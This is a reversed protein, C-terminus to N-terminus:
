VVLFSDIISPWYRHSFSKHHNVSQKKKIQDKSIQRYICGDCFQRYIPSDSLKQYLDDFFQRHSKGVMKKAVSMITPFGNIFGTVSPKGVTKTM